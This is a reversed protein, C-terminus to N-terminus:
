GKAGRQRRRRRASASEGAGSAGRAQGPFQAHFENVRVDKTNPLVVSKIEVLEPQQLWPSSEINRMLTSVRANSQAYGIMTV